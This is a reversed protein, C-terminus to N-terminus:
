QSTIYEAIIYFKFFPRCEILILSLLNSGVVFGDKLQLIFVIRDEVLLAFVFEHTVIIASDTWLIYEFHLKM